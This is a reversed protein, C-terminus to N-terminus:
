FGVALMLVYGISIIIGYAMVSGLVGVKLFDVTAIYNQGTADELSVANMNPFGSVPLGMAGAPLLHLPLPFLLLLLLLLLTTQACALQV